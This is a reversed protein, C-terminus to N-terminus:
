QNRVVDIQHFTYRKSEAISYPKAAHIFPVFQAPQDVPRMVVWMADFVAAEDM